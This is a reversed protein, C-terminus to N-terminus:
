KTLAGKIYKLIKVLTSISLKRLNHITGYHAHAFNLGLYTSSVEDSYNGKAIFEMGDVAYIFSSDGGIALGEDTLEVAPIIEVEENPFLPCDEVLEGTSWGIFLRGTPTELIRPLYHNAEELKVLAMYVKEFINEDM